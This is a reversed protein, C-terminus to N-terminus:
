MWLSEMYEMGDTSNTRAREERRLDALDAVLCGIYFDYIIYM